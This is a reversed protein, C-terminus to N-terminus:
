IGNKDVGLRKYPQRRVTQLRNTKYKTRRPHSPSTGMDRSLSRPLDSLLPDSTPEIQLSSLSLSTTTNAPHSAPPPVRVNSTIPLLNPRCGLILLTLYKGRLYKKSANPHSTPQLPHKSGGVKWTSYPDEISLIICVNLKSTIGEQIYHLLHSSFTCKNDSTNLELCM